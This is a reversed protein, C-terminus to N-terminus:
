IRAINKCDLADMKNAHIQTQLFKVVQLPSDIYYTLDSDYLFKQLSRHYVGTAEFVFTVKTGSRNILRAQYEILQNFGDIPHKLIRPETMPEELNFFGQYHCDGKSVDLIIKSGAYYFVGETIHLIM